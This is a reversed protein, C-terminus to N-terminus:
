GMGHDLCWTSIKLVGTQANVNDMRSGDPAYRAAIERLTAVDSTSAAAVADHAAKFAAADVGEGAKKALACARVTAKDFSPSPAPTPSSAAAPVGAKGCGSAMVVLAAAAILVRFRRTKM